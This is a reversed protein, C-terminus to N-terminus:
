YRSSFFHWSVSASSSGKGRSMECATGAGLCGLVAQCGKLFWKHFAGEIRQEVCAAAASALPHLQQCLVSPLPM